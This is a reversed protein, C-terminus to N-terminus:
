RIVILKTESQKNAVSELYYTGAPLGELQELENSNGDYQSLVKGNADTLITVGQQANPTLVKVSVDPVVSKAIRTEYQGDQGFLSTCLFLSFAMIMLNKMIKFKEILLKNVM